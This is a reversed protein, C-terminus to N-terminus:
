DMNETIFHVFRSAYEDADVASIGHRDYRLSKFMHELKKTVNYQQLIDIIGVYYIEPTAEGTPLRGVVGGDRRNSWPSRALKWILFGHLDNAVVNSLRSCCAAGGQGKRLADSVM